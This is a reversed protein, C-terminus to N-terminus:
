VSYITPLTLHTYSVANICVRQKRGSLWKMIWEHLKGTIGHSELKRGLRVHPVKDFAKAFDMFIVDVNNGSDIMSYVLDLFTLLNSLCSLGKRFGHQSDLILANTELCHVISDRIVSEFLKCFIKQSILSLIESITCSLSKTVISSLYSIMCPSNFPM